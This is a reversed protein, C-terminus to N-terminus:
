VDFWAGAESSLAAEVLAEGVTLDGPPPPSSASWLGALVGVCLAAAAALGGSRWVLADGLTTFWGHGGRAGGPATSLIRGLLAASVPAHPSADLMGDLVAAETLIAEADHPYHRVFDRAAAVEDAPWRAIRGGYAAALAEFRTKDM